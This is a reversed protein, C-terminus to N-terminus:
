GPQLARRWDKGQLRGFYRALAVLVAMDMASCRIRTRIRMASRGPAETVGTVPYRVKRSM